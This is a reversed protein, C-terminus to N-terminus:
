RNDNKREKESIRAVCLALYEEDADSGLVDNSPGGGHTHSAALIINQKPIGISAAINARIRNATVCPLSVMDMGIVAVTHQQDRIVCATTQLPDLIGTSIRPSFGGPIISGPAPTIDRASFGAEITM